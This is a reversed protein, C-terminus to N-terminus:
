DADLCEWHFDPHLEHNLVKQVKPNFNEWQAMNINLRWGKGTYGKFFPIHPWGNWARGNASPRPRLRLIPGIGRYGSILITSGLRGFLSDDEITWTGGMVPLLGPVYTRWYDTTEPWPSYDLRLDLSKAPDTSMTAMKGLGDVEGRGREKAKVYWARKTNDITMKYPDDTLRITATAM